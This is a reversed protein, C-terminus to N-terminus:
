GIAMRVMYALDAVLYTPVNKCVSLPDRGTFALVVQYAFVGMPGYAYWKAM